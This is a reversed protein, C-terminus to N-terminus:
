STYTKFKKDYEDQMSGEYANTDGALYDKGWQEGRVARGRITRMGDAIYTYNDKTEFNYIVQKKLDGEAPEVRTVEILNNDPGLVTDGINLWQVIAATGDGKIMWETGSVMSNNLHWIEPHVDVLISVIPKAELPTNWRRTKKTEPYSMVMDGIELDEINCYTSDAMLVKTGAVWCASGPDDGVDGGADSGGDPASPAGPPGGPPGEPTASGGFPQDRGIDMDINYGMAELDAPSEPGDFDGPEPGFTGPPSIDLDINYGRTELDKDDMGEKGFFTDYVFKVLMVPLAFAPFAAALVGLGLNTAMKAPDFPKGEYRDRAVDLLGGIIPASFKGSVVNSLTDRAVSFAVDKGLDVTKDVPNAAWSDFETSIKSAIDEGLNSVSETVTDFSVEPAGQFSDDAGGDVPILSSIGQPLGPALQQPNAIQGINTTTKPIPGGSIRQGFINFNLRNDAIQGIDLKQNSVGGEQRRVPIFGALGSQNIPQTFM